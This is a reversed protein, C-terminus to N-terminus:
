NTPTAIALALPRPVGPFEQVAAKDDKLDVLSLLDSEQSAVVVQSFDPHVAVAGPHQALSVSRVFTMSNLNMVRLANEKPSSIVALGLNEDVAISGPEFDLELSSTITLSALDLIALHRNQSLLFAAGMGPHVALARYVEATNLAALQKRGTNDLVRIGQASDTLVLSRKRTPDTAIALIEAGMQIRDVLLKPTAPSLDVFRIEDSPTTLGLVALNSVPDIAIKRAGANLPLVSRFRDSLRWRSLLGKLRETVVYAQGQSQHVAVDRYRFRMSLPVAWKAQLPDLKLLKDGLPLSTYLVKTSPDFVVDGPKDVLLHRGQNLSQKLDILNVSIDDQTAIFANGGQIDVAVRNASGDLASATDVLGQVPDILMWQDKNKPLVLALSDTDWWLLGDIQSGIPM